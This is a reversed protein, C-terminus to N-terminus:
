LLLAAPEATGSLVEEFIHVEMLAANRTIYAAKNAVNLQYLQTKVM